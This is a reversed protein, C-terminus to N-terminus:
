SWMTAIPIAWMNDSFPIVKNGRYLVIGCIFDDKTQKRLEKLGKFDHESVADRGKVEIASLQGNPAELVFDVEKGDSTRFHYLEAKETSSSLQKLLETAVFNELIHGFLHPDNLNAKEIDIQQLHCLLSTDIIYNKPSKVLRKGINRFWPKVDFTLFMMQLLIRYNKGTVANQGIARAIDAENVLGGARSALIKLLNPLIGLKAIDAIQRVDRQLITTIYSEFWQRRRVDDEQTIEPFTAQKITDTIKISSKTHTPKFRNHMLCPLFNGKGSSVELASLPYLTLVRMRGVLADSLKPLAMINTSGTLLYRGNAYKKGELRAEDVLLKLVRFLSPAMQVEDLILRNKYARLFSEPNAEAAGLISAEDFTMYDAPWEKAALQQVLTSKGAQRPGNIYVVPFGQLADLTNNKLNRQLV